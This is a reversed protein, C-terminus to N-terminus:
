TVFAVESNFLLKEMVFIPNEYGYRKRPRKNITDEVEKIKQETILAFNYKKPFYQRILGNLNENAGREWSHYPRAFFFDVSLLKAVKEHAAFEKGNDSTITNIFPKWDELLEIMADAVVGAEKSPIHKMKLVGSARDNITLIAEKHNKGIILDVELDGFREKKDVIKPRQEIGVRNKIIGRNSKSAGRKKYRRGRRRLHLHLDGGDKKDKWIHQYIREHSVYSKGQKEMTGSVQEPSYDQRILAEIEHQMSETFVIHKPIKSQRLKYKRQALDHRYEGSREDKNRRIERSIVSKDKGIINGISELSVGQKLMCSITYRQEYTIHSMNCSKPRLTIYSIYGNPLLPLNIREKEESFIYIIVRAKLLQM